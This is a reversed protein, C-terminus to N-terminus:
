ALTLTGQTRMDEVFSEIDLALEPDEASVGLELNGAMGSATFNWSGIMVHRRDVVVCKLHMLGREHGDVETNVLISLNKWFHGRTRDVEGVVRDLVLWIEVGREAADQLERIVAGDLSMFTCLLIRSDANGIHELLEDRVPGAVLGSCRESTLLRLRDGARM